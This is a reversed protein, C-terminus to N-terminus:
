PKMHLELHDSLGRNTHEKTYVTSVAGASAAAAQAVVYAGGDDLLNSDVSSRRCRGSRHHVISDISLHLHLTQSLPFPPITEMNIVALSNKVVGQFNICAMFGSRM